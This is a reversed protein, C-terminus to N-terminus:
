NRSSHTKMAHYKTLCPSLKVKPSQQAMVEYYVGDPWTRSLAEGQMLIDKRYCTNRSRQKCHVAGSATSQTLKAGTPRCTRPEESITKRAM